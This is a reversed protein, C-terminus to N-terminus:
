LKVGMDLRQGDRLRAMFDVDVHRRERAVTLSDIQDVATEQYVAERIVEQVERDEVGKQGLFRDYDTGHSLDLPFSAKNTQLTLRVNQATTEGGSITRLLGEKDFDLDRTEPDIYLTDNM